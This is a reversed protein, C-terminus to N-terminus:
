SRKAKRGDRVGLEYGESVADQVAYRERLQAFVERAEFWTPSGVPSGGTLHIAAMGQTMMMDNRGPRGTEFTSKM